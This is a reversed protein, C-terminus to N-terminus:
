AHGAAAYYERIIRDFNNEWFASQMRIQAAEKDIQAKPCGGMCVPLYQCESCRPHSFPDYLDWRNAPLTESPMAGDLAGHAGVAAHARHHDGVDLGCKYALGNPGFVVANNSVAACNITVRNPFYQVIELSRQDRFRRLVAYFERQIEDFEADFAQFKAAKGVFGCHETMANIVAVYPYFKTDPGLWGREACEDIVELADRGIWPDVNVRLYIRISGILKDIVGMVQQFSASRGPGGGPDILGRRKNHHREPGDLSFQIIHLRNRTVFDVADQPWATGNCIMSGKYAIGRADCYDTMAATYREIIPQNLMPEGGYWDVYLRPYAREEIQQKTWAIIADCTEPSMHELMGEKQYCYYCRMNCDLTTTITVFFPARARNKAYSARLAAREDSGESVFIGADVFAPLQDAILAPLDTAAFPRPEWSGYGIGAERERQEGLFPTWAQALDRDLALLAGTTGNFLLTVAGHPVRLNYYSARYREM